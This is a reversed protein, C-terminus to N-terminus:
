IYILIQTGIILPPSYSHPFLPLAGRHVNKGGKGGELCLAGKAGRTNKWNGRRVMQGTNKVHKTEM